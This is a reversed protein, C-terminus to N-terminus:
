QLIFTLAGMILYQTQENVPPADPVPTGNIAYLELNKLWEGFTYFTNRNKCTTKCTATGTDSNCVNDSCDDGDDCAEAARGDKPASDKIGDGCRAAKCNARCSANPSNSNASGEDCEEGDDLTGDGCTPPISSDASSEASSSGGDDPIGCNYGTTPYEICQSTGMFTVGILGSDCNVKEIDQFCLGYGKGEVCCNGKEPAESSSSEEAASSTDGGASSPQGGGAVGKFTGCFDNCSGADDWAYEGNGVMVKTECIEPTNTDAVSLLFASCSATAPNCCYRKYSGAPCSGVCSEMDPFEMGIADLPDVPTSNATDALLTSALLPSTPSQAVSEVERCGVCNALNVPGPLSDCKVQKKKDPATVETCASPCTGESWWARLTGKVKGVTVSKGNYSDCVKKRGDLKTQDSMEGLEKSILSQYTSNWGSKLDAIDMCISYM